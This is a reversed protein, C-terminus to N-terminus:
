SRLTAALEAYLHITSRTVKEFDSISQSEDIGHINSYPDEIGLMLAPVGGLAECFPGVFPISGGGGVVFPAKGFGIELSRAAAKFAPHETSTHWAPAAPHRHVHVTVGFPPERELKAVLADQIKQPDQGPVLRVGVRAWASETIINRADARSSAQMANIALTPKRWIREFPNDDHMLPVGDIIGSMKRFAAKDIPLAEVSAKEAANMPIVGDYFGPLDVTGDAKVLSGLIKCMALAPDPLPGGWLGSHVPGHLSKVEIDVAAMGRLSNTLSPIGTDVNATDNIIIADAKLRDLHKHLFKMLHASGVEEEGEILFKLNVPSKGATRTWADVAAAHIAIGVKDDSTGRGYLRGNRETPEFPPSTWQAPDGAPQVDHHAYLLLTPAKPDVVVEAFVYPHAQELSLIEVNTFGRKKLLEATAQASRKMHSHDFGPFSISPIAVLSKLDNLYESKHADFHEVAKNANSM